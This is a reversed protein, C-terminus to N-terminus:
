EATAPTCRYALFLTGKPSRQFDLLELRQTEDRDTVRRGHGALAPAVVLQLEDVLGARLLSRALDISGHIGIDGGPQRKLERVYDTAPTGVATTNAWEQSLATSTFVHKPTENVFSAFPELESTPWYGVWYDYTRRGFLIDDQTGIVRGLNAFMEPGGDDFWDSDELAIGDLSQLHYLVVKRM